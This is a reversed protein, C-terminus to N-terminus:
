LDYSSVKSAFAGYFSAVHMAWSDSSVFHTSDTCGDVGHWPCWIGGDYHGHLHSLTIDCSSPLKGRTYAEACYRIPCLYLMQALKQSGVQQHKPWYAPLIDENLLFSMVLAVMDDSIPLRVNRLSVITSFTLDLKSLGPHHKCGAIGAKIPAPKPQQFSTAEDMWRESVPPPM